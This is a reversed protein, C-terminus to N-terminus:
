EIVDQCEIAYRRRYGPGSTGHDKNFQDAKAQAKERTAFVWNLYEEDTDVGNCGDWSTHIVKIIFVQM